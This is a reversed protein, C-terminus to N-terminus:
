RMYIDRYFNSSTRRRQQFGSLLSPSPENPDWMPEDAHAYEFRENTEPITTRLVAVLRSLGVQNAQRITPQPNEMPCHRCLFDVVKHRGNKEAEILASVACGEARNEHLYRVVDLHGRRIACSMVSASFGPFANEHVFKICEFHSRNATLTSLAPACGEDRHEHLFRM